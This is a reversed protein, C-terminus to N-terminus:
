WPNWGELVFPTRSFNCVELEIVEMAFKRDISNAYADVPDINSTALISNVSRLFCPIRM